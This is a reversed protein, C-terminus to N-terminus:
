PSEWSYLAFATLMQVFHLICICLFTQFTYSNVGVTIIYESRFTFTVQTAIPLISSKHSRINLKKSM